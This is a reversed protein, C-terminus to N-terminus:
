ETCEKDFTASWLLCVSEVWCQECHDMPVEWRIGVSATSVCKHSRSRLCYMQCWTWLKWSASCLWYHLCGLQSYCCHQTYFFYGVAQKWKMRLGRIMFVRVENALQGDHSFGIIKDHYKDYTLTCKVAMEDFVLSCQCDRHPLESVRRRLIDFLVPSFGEGLSGATASVFKRLTSVSPLHLHKAVYRYASANKYQLQLSLLKDKVSWRFKNPGRYSARM